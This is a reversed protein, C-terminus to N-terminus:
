RRTSIPLYNRGFTKKGGEKVISEIILGSTYYHKLWQLRSFDPMDKKLIEYLAEPARKYDVDLEDALRLLSSLLRVRVKKLGIPQRDYDTSYLDVKRHGESILRVCEAEIHDLGLAKYNEKIYRGSRFHHEDRILDQLTYPKKKLLSISEVRKEDDPYKCQMGVDHLYASSLLCFIETEELQDEPNLGIVLHDLIDIVSNSHKIGHLTYYTHYLEGKDWIEKAKNEIIKLRPALEDGLQQKLGM